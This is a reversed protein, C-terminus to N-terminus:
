AERSIKIAWLCAQAQAQAWAELGIGAAALASITDGGPGREAAEVAALRQGLIGARELLAHTVPEPLNLPQIITAMPQGLLPELLSFMGVMFAQDHLAKDDGARTAIAELLGARLAARPMLPNPQEAGAKRGYLLLQVWRQLQRRGLLAIAQKFSGIKNDLSFAVSNVMKLLQYSLHQDQKLTAEIEATEADAGVQALLKLMVARGPNAAAAKIAPHLQYNGAIWHYGADRCREFDDIADVGLALHPGRMGGPPPTPEGGHWEVAVGSIKEAHDGGDPPAGEVLLRCGAARWAGLEGLRGPDVCDGAAVRLVIQGPPLAAALAPDPPIGRPLICPLGGLSAALGFEGLIRAVAAGTDGAPTAADAELVIGAWRHTGDAVPHLTLLPFTETTM